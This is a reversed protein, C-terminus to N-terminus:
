IPLEKVESHFRVAMENLTGLKELAEEKSSANAQLVVRAGYDTCNNQGLGYMQCATDRFYVSAKKIVEDPQVLNIMVLGPVSKLVGWQHMANACCHIGIRGGFHKSLELIAPYAFEEFQATSISGIEDESLTIGYPMYYDPYHAIFEKGFTEFWLELFETLLEACMAIIDKVAQPEDYFAMFFNSKEWVLAAIDLPSQVDPLQLLVGPAAAQLKHGYELIEMLSSNELKPKKLKVLERASFIVPRAFPNNNEPYIVPCGFAHAFNDTGITASIYPVRDDDLWQLSDMQVRNKHVIYDFFKDMNDPSPFVREGYDMEILIMTRRGGAYFDCWRQKRENITM